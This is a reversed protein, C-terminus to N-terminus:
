EIFIKDTIVQNGSVLSVLYIGRNFGASGLNVKDTNVPGSWVLRGSIDTIRIVADRLTSAQIGRLYLFGESIFFRGNGPDHDGIGAGAYILELDDFLAYSGSVPTTGNGSTLIILIYDPVQMSYYTFPVSFRTWTSATANPMAYQAFGVWGAPPTLTDPIKGYGKHLLAKVTGFDAGQPYYKYWGAISDPRASL